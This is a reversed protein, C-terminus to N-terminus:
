VSGSSRSNPPSVNDYATVYYLDTTSGNALTLTWTSGASLPNATSPIYQAVVVTGAANTETVVLKGTNVSDYTGSLNVTTGVVNKPNITPAGLTVVSVTGNFQETNGYADTIMMVVGTTASIPVAPNLTWTGNPTIVVAAASNNGVTVALATTSVDATGNIVSIPNLSHPDTVTPASLYTETGNVTSTNGYKDTEVVTVITSSSLPQGLNVSWVGGAITAPYDTGNVFVDVKGTGTVNNADYTGQLQGNPLALHNRISPVTLTYYNVTGTGVVGNNFADYATVTVTTNGTQLTGAALALSWNGGSSTPVYDVGNIAVKLKTSNALDYTGTITPTASSTNLSTVTPANEVHTTVTGTSQVTNGYKDYETLTVPTGAPIVLANTLALNWTSSGATNITPYTFTGVKVVLQVTNPDVTGTITPNASLTNPDTVTANTLTGKLMVVDVNTLALQGGIVVISPNVGTAEYLTSRPASVVKLGGEFQNAGDPSGYMGLVSGSGLTITALNKYTSATSAFASNKGIESDILTGLTSHDITLGVVSLGSNHVNVNTLPDTQIVQQVHSLTVGNHNTGGGLNIDLSGIGNLPANGNNQLTVTNGFRNLTMNLNLPGATTITATGNNFTIGAAGPAGTFTTGAAPILTLTEGAAASYTSQVTFTDYASTHTTDTLTVTPPAGNPASLTVSIQNASLMRRSELVELTSVYAGSRDQRIRNRRAGRQSSAQTSYGQLLSFLQQTWNRRM